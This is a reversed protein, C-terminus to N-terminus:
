VIEDAPLGVRILTEIQGSAVGERQLEAQVRGLIDEAQSRQEATISLSQFQGTYLGLSPPAMTPLPIVNLLVLHLLSSTQQMLESVTRLAQQTAPSFNADIGLLIRKNM